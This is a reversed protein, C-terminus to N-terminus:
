LLQRRLQVFFRVFNARKRSSLIGKFFEQIRIPHVSVESGLCNPVIDKTSFHWISKKTDTGFHRQSVEASTGFQRLDSTDQTQLTRVSRVGRIAIRIPVLISRNTSPIIWLFKDVVEDTIMLLFASNEGTVCHYFNVRFTRLDPDLDLSIVALIKQCSRHGFCM